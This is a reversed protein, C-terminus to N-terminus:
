IWGRRSAQVGAQFRSNAGLASMLSASRRRMTRISWGLQRAIANDALGGVMLTLLAHDDETLEGPPETQGLPVGQRWYQEFLDVLAELLTSERILAVQASALDHGLPLLAIRRDAIALKLPLSPVVRGQEGSAALRQIEELAGEIELAEAAYVARWRVGQALSVPEVPNTTALAYPPRDLVLMEDRVQHQLRVFWRGLDAPGDLLEIAGGRSDAQQAAHFLASLAMSRTRVQELEATRARVLSEIAADPEAAAYRRTRGALRSVLGLARLRRLAADIRGPSSGIEGALDNPTSAPHSLLSRYVREDYGTVGLPKLEGPPRDKVRHESVRNESVRNESVRYESVM